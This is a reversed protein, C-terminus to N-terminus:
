LSRVFDVIRHSIIGAITMFAISWLWATWSPATLGMEPLLIRGSIYAGTVTVLVIVLAGLYALFKDM